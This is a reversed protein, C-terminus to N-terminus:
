TAGAAARRLVEAWAARAADALASPSGRNDLVLDARARKPEADMQAAMMAEAQATTLGRLEVLRRRREAAPADVVVVMDMAADLGTEFLLPIEHVVVHAGGAVLRAEEVKRLRQIEPHTIAELAAREAADAFVMERLAARDLAGDADLVRPGFRGVVAALGPSGPAVARRALADADVVHAGQQRWVAAVASKGSAINGTLGVRVPAAPPPERGADM